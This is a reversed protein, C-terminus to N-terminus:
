AQRHRTSIKRRLVLLEEREGLWFSITMLVILTYAPWAILLWRKTNDLLLRLGTPSAGNVTAMGTPLAKNKVVAMLQLFATQGASDAGQIKVTFDQHEGTGASKYTHSISFTTADKQVMTSYKGDGWNVHLAYPSLGGSLSIQM